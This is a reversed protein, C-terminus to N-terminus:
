CWTQSSRQCLRVGEEGNGAEGVLKFEDNAMLVAGLGSRVVAHDDVLLVRIPNAM